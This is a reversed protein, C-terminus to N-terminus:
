TLALPQERRRLSNWRRDSIPRPAKPSTMLTSYAMENLCINKQLRTPKPANYFLGVENGLRTDYSTVSGPYNQKATNQTTQNKHTINLKHITRIKLKDETRNKGTHVLTFPVTYGLQASTVNLIQESVWRRQHSELAMGHICVYAM